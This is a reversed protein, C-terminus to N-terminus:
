SSARSNTSFSDLYQQLRWGRFSWARWPAFKSRHRIVLAERTNDMDFYTRDAQRNPHRLYRDIAPLAQPGLCKVYSFDLPVGKGSLEKSHSVNYDAIVLPFNIFACIYFVATLSALNAQVLWKNGRNLAIRAVILVLGIAVIIMWVLAAVRWYTLSYVQVYLDLRLISSIVLM